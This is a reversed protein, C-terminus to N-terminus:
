VPEMWHIFRGFLTSKFTGTSPYLRFGNIYLRNGRRIISRKTSKVNDPLLFLRGNVTVSGEKLFVQYQDHCLYTGQGAFAEKPADLNSKALMRYREMIKHKGEIHTFLNDSRGHMFHFIDSDTNTKIDVGAFHADLGLAVDEYGWGTNFARDDFWSDLGYVKVMLSNLKELAVKTVSFNCSWCVMGTLIYDAKEDFDEVDNFADTVGAIIRLDRFDMDKYSALNDMNGTLLDSPFLPHEKRVYNGEKNWDGLEIPRYTHKRTGFVLRPERSSHGGLAKLHNEVFNDHEPFTDGDMFILIDAGDELATKIGLNRTSSRGKIPAEITKISGISGRPSLDVEFKDSHDNIVLIDLHLITQSELKKICFNVTDDQNHCPMIITINKL